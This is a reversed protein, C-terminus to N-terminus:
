KEEFGKCLWVMNPITLAQLRLLLPRLGAVPTAIMLLADPAATASSIHAVAADFDSTITLRDPLAFRPFYRLNERQSSADHMAAEDRGWLIVQHRDALSM